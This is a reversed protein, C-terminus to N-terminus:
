ESIIDDASSPILTGKRVPLLAVHGSISRIIVFILAPDRLSAPTIALSTLWTAWM